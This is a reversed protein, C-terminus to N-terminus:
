VYSRESENNQSLIHKGCKYCDSEYALCCLLKGCPGITKANTESLGQEKVLSSSIHQKLHNFRSCCCEMGCVGIGGKIKFAERPSIQVMEIRTKYISALEKVTERFDIREDSSFNVILKGGDLLFYCGVFHVDPHHKKLIYKINKEEELDRKRNRNFDDIEKQSAKSIIKKDPEQSLDVKNSVVKGIDKGYKTEIIVHDGFALEQSDDTLFPSVTNNLFIKVYVSKM